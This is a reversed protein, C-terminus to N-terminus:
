KTVRGIPIPDRRLWTSPAMAVCMVILPWYPGDWMGYRPGLRPHIYPALRGLVVEFLLTMVLWLAGIRIVQARPLAPESVLFPRSAAVILSMGIFATMMEAADPGLTSHFLTLGIIGNWFLLGAVVGWVGLIKSM